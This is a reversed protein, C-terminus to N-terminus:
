SHIGCKRALFPFSSLAISRYSRLPREFPFSFAYCLLLVLLIGTSLSLYPLNGSASLASIFAMLPFHIVYLSFSCGALHKLLSGFFTKRDDSLKFWRSCGFILLGLAMATLYDDLFKASYFLPSVGLGPIDWPHWHSWRETMRHILFGASPIILLLSIIINTRWCKCAKYACVGVLWCPFLILIKPGAFLSAIAGALIKKKLTPLLMVLGFILYYFFEYSLSWVPSNSGPRVSLFWSENLFSASLLYKALLHEGVYISEYTAPNISRGWYDLACGIALAPIVVTWLRTLRAFLYQNFNLDPKNDVSWSIVFGSLVFFVIVYDQGNQPGISSPGFFWHFNTHGLFVGLTATIRLLDLFGSM